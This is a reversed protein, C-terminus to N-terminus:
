DATLALIKDAIAPNLRRRHSYELSSNITAMERADILIDEGIMDNQRLWAAVESWYWM